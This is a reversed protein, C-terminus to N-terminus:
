FITDGNELLQTADSQSRLSERYRRRNLLKRQVADPFETFQIVEKDILLDIVDELVRIFEIDSTEMLQNGAGPNRKLFQKLGEDETDIPQWQESLPKESIASIENNENRLVYIM